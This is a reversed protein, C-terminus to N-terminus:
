ATVAPNAVDSRSGDEPRLFKQRALV